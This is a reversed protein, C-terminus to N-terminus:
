SLIQQVVPAHVSTPLLVRQVYRIAALANLISNTRELRAHPTVNTILQPTFTLFQTLQILVTSVNSLTRIACRANTVAHAELSTLARLQRSKDLSIPTLFDPTSKSKFTKQFILSTAWLVITSHSTSRLPTSQQFPIFSKITPIPISVPSPLRSWSTFGPFRRM